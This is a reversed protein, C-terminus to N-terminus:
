GAASPWCRSSAARSRGAGSGRGSPSARSSGISRRWTARSRGRTRGAPRTEPPQGGLDRGEFRVAGAQPRLLGSITKLTTSKGAGNAGILAVIEGAEVALSVDHLVPVPGYAVRLGDLELM